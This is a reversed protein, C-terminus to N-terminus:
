HQVIRQEHTIIMLCAHQNQNMQHTFPTVDTHKNAKNGHM